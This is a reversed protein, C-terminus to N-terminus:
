SFFHDKFFWKCSIKYKLYIFILLHQTLILSNRNNNSLKEMPFHSPTPTLLFYYNKKTFVYKRKIDEEKGGERSEM